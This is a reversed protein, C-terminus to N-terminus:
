KKGNDELSGDPLRRFRSVYAWGLEREVPHVEHGKGHMLMFHYLDQHGDATYFVHETYRHDPHEPSPCFDRVTEGAVGVADPKLCDTTPAVPIGNFLKWFNYDLEQNCGHRIPYESERTGYFYMIPMRCPKERQRALAQMLPAYNKEPDGAPFLPRNRREQGPVSLYPEMRAPKFLGMSVYPFTSDVPCSAAVLEPHTMAFLMAFGAGNSFGSTYIRSEDSPDKEKLYAILALYYDVDSPLAPDCSLNWSGRNCSSPYVTIFGEREGIEHFKAMDATNFLIDGGGHSFLMLPVKKEPHAAVAAPCHEIWDHALGGNDGLRTDGIHVDFNWQSPVVRSDVDGHLSTNVRRTLRFFNDWMLRGAEKDFATKNMVRVKQTPFYPCFYLGM